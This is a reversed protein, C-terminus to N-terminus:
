SATAWNAPLNPPQEAPETQPAPEPTCNCGPLTAGNPATCTKAHILAAADITIAHLGCAFVPTTCDGPQPLPGFDPAPQQPDALLLRDDRREQELAVYAAFETDTLRRQWQAIAPAGCAACLPGPTPTPTTM